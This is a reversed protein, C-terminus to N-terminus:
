GRRHSRSRPNWEGRDRGSLALTQLVNDGLDLGREEVSNSDRDSDEILQYEISRSGEIDDIVGFLGPSEIFCIYDKGTLISLDCKGML